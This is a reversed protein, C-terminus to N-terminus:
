EFGKPVIFAANELSPANALAADRGAFARAADTRLKTVTPTVFTETRVARLKLEKVFGLVEGIAEVFPELEDEQVDIRALKALKLLESANIVATEDPSM